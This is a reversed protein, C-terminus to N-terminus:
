ISGLNHYELLKCLALFSGDFYKEGIQYGVFITKLYKTVSVRQFLKQRTTMNTELAFFPHKYLSARRFQTVTTSFVLFKKCGRYQCLLAMWLFDSYKPFSQMLVFKPRQKLTRGCPRIDDIYKHFKSWKLRKGFDVLCGLRFQSKANVHLLPVMFELELLERTRM